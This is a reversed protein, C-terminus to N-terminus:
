SQQLAKQSSFAKYNSMIEEITENDKLESVESLLKEPPTIDSEEAKCYLLAAAATMCLVSYDVEHKKLLNLSGIIRENKGLKRKADRANRAISDKIEPNCFKARSLASFREQDASSCGFEACIARNTAAYNKDLLAAVRSDNAASAYDEYGYLWGMYAIVASAANYTYIKRKLVNEFHNQPEFASIPPVYGPLLDSDFPLVPYDESRIDPTGEDTTTCFVAAESVLVNPLGIAASLLSAPGIGNECTIIRFHKEAPLMEKLMKGVDPLNTQGVSVLILDNFFLEPDEWSKISYGSILVPERKGGFFHVTYHGSSQLSDILATDKDIFDVAINSEAALRALFGRGTKGAGIVTIRNM